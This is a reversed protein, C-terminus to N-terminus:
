AAFTSAHAQIYDEPTDLDLRLGPDKIEQQVSRSANLKLFEKLTAARANQLRDFVPRPLMVPHAAHGGFAPQCVADSHLVSFDWLQRLTEIRLHPQDGLAIAWHSIDSRWGPWNAACVISSFMGRESHPNPIRGQSSFSLRDLEAALASDDPRLVMAIQAAGLERWQSILHGAVTTGRWPLLLKPRGMRSSAGAGLIVVALAPPTRISSM